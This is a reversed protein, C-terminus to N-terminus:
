TTSGGSTSPAPAPTPTPALSGAGGGGDGDGGGFRGDGGHRGFGNRGRPVLNPDAQNPQTPAPASSTAAPAPAATPTSADASHHLAGLLLLVLFTAATAGGVHRHARATDNTNMNIDM